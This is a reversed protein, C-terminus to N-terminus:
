GLLDDLSDDGYVINAKQKPPKQIYEKEVGIEKDIAAFDKNINDLDSGFEINFNTDNIGLEIDKEFELISDLDAVDNEVNQIMENGKEVIKSKESDKVDYGKEEGLAIDKEKNRKKKENEERYAATMEDLRDNLEKPIYSINMVGPPQVTMKSVICYTVEGFDRFRIDTPSFRLSTSKEKRITVDKSFSMSGKFPDFPKVTQTEKSSLETKEGFQNSYYLADAYEIGPYIIQSRANASVLALFNKGDDGIAIQERAQTALLCGVRYSRGQTLMIGFAKNAFEQFEDVYFFHPMRSKEPLPRRFVAAQFQLILFLGLVKALDRLEGQATTMAIVGGKRLHEDFNISKQGKEPNLTRRLYKNSILKSVSTRIGSTFEYTKTGGKAGGNMSSFYDTMFWIALDENEKKKEKYAYVRGLDSIAKKGEDDINQLFRNLSILTTYYKDPYAKELRKLVKIANRLLNENQDQFFQSSTDGGMQKFTTVMNEVVQDEDDGEMPNFPPCDEMIPNFYLVDKGYEKALAWVKEALDSKPELVTIGINEKQMDQHIMPIIIQSTKGSGNDIPLVKINDGFKGRIRM